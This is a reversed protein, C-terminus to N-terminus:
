LMGWSLSAGPAGEVFRLQIPRVRRFALRYKSALKASGDIYLCDAALLADDLIGTRKRGAKKARQKTKRM